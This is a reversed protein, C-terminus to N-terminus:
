HLSMGAGRSTLQINHGCCINSSITKREAVSENMGLLSKRQKNTNTETKPQKRLGRRRGGLGDLRFLFSFFFFPPHFPWDVPQGSIWSEAKFNEAKLDFQGAELLLFHWLGAGPWETDGALKSPNVRM